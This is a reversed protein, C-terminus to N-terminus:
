TVSNRMNFEPLRSAIYDSRKEIKSIWSRSCQAPEPHKLRAIVECYIRDSCSLLSQGCLKHLGIIGHLQRGYHAICLYTSAIQYKNCRRNLSIALLQEKVKRCLGREYRGTVVRVFQQEITSAGQIGESTLNFFVARMIGIPDVGFHNLYRRDEAIVLVEILRSPLKNIDHVEIINLCIQIEQRANSINLFEFVRACFILPLSFLFIGLKM